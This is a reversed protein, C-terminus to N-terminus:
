KLRLIKVICSMFCIEKDVVNVDQAQSDALTIIADGINKPDIYEDLKEFMLSYLDDFRKLSNDAVLQRINDFAERPGSNKLEEIIKLKVDGDLVADKGVKLVGDIVSQQAVNIISRIDPYHAHVIMALGDKDFTVNEAKLINILCAAVEKKTPPIIQFSQCRSVIPEIIREHYNCTLIFRSHLSFTEMMNRLARQGDPTIADAEDLIIVKLPNFGINAAFNRVRDRIVDIGREDSANIYLVDCKISKTLLKALTTKGTGATGYFLLHPIDNSKIFQAAKAKLTENGVYKDLSAPRYKEVWLSNVQKKEVVPESEELFNTM